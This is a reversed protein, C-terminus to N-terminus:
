EDWDIIDRVYTTAMCLMETAIAEKNQKITNSKKLETVRPKTGGYGKLSPIVKKKTM